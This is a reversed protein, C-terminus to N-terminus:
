SRDLPQDPGPRVSSLAELVGPDIESLMANWYRPTSKYSLRLHMQVVPYLAHRARICLERSAEEAPADRLYTAVARTLLGPGTKSWPSDNDRQLLAQCATEVAWQLVPHGPRACILNNAIARWPNRIVMLGAGPPLLDAPDGILKDDADAYIGGKKLLWCLRLFDSGETSSNALRFARAHDRGFEALLFEVASLRDLRTYAFGPRGQWSRMVADLEEPIGATDWYQMIRRPIAPTPSAAPSEAQQHQKLWRAIIQQAPFVFRQALDAEPEGAQAEIRYLKLENLKRGHETVSFQASGKSGRALNRAERAALTEADELRGLALCLMLRQADGIGTFLGQSEREKALALAQELAGTDLLLRMRLGAAESAQGSADLADLLAALQDARGSHLCAEAFLRRLGVAQPWARLCLGLYRRALPNQGSQTMLRALLEVAAPQRPAPLSERALRYAAEPGQCILAAEIAYTHRCGPPLREALAEVLQAALAPDGATHAKRVLFLATDPQLHERALLLRIADAALTQEGAAEAARSLRLLRPETWRRLSGKHHLRRAAALAQETRGSDGALHALELWRLLLPPEAQTLDGPGAARELVALAAPLDRGQEALDARALAAGLHQPQERLIDNLLPEAATPNGARQYARAQQLRVQPDAPHHQLAAACGRLARGPDNAALAAEILNVLALRHTPEGQLIQECIRLSGAPDGSLRLAVALRLRLLPRHPQAEALAQFVQAAEAPRQCRQLLSGQQERLDPDGPIQVLAQQCRQLALHPDDLALAADIWGRLAGPHGPHQELVAAFLADTKIHKGAAQCARALAAAITANHPRERHVRELLVVAEGRRGLSALVEAKKVLLWPDQPTRGLAAHIAALAEPFERSRVATLIRERTPGDAVSDM